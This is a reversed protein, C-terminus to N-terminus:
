GTVCVVNRCVGRYGSQKAARDVDDGDVEM